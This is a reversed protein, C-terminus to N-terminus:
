RGLPTGPSPRVLKYGPTHAVPAASEATARSRPRGALSHDFMAVCRSLNSLRHQEARGMRPPLYGAPQPLGAANGLTGAAGAWQMERPPWWRSAWTACTPSTRGGRLMLQEPGSPLLQLSYPM